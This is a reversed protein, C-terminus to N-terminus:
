AAVTCQAEQGVQGSFVDKVNFTLRICTRGNDVCISVRGDGQSIAVFASDNPRMWEDFKTASKVPFVGRGEAIKELWTVVEPTIVLVAGWGQGSFVLRPRGKTRLEVKFTAGPQMASARCFLFFGSAPDAFRLMLDNKKCRYRVKGSQTKRAAYKRNGSILKSMEEVKAHPLPVWLSMGSGTDARIGDWGVAMVEGISLKEV